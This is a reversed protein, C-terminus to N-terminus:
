RVLYTYRSWSVCIYIIGVTGLLLILAAIIILAYPFVQWQVAVVATRLPTVTVPEYVALASAQLATAVEQTINGQAEASLLSRCYFYLNHIRLLLVKQELM